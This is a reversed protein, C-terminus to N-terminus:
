LKVQFRQLTHQLTENNPELRQAARWADRAADQSGSKWLVEGLHAGIEANPQLDYARRLLTAAGNLDGERYKVWGLSDIIYADDPSLTNAKEILKSAEPLRENRDALSYGLANYAEPNDPQLRILERLQQEMCAYDATKECAMAYDYRLDTDSPYDKVAQALRKTAESYRQSDFLVAADTRAILAAEHTDSPHLKGLAARAEDIKGAHSLLEARTIQAALYRRSDPAIKDLWQTAEDTKGQDLALQALYLYAQSVDADPNQQALEVYQKFYGTAAASQKQQMKILGLALLPTADKPDNRRLTEFQKQADELRNDALYLQALALHADRSQPHQAVYQEFVRIGKARADPGMQSLLLAAPLYDAKLALAAELSQTAGATDDALVQQRAIAYRAEPRNMDNKLLDQLVALGDTRNPGRGILGQLAVIAPGRSAGKARALEQALMPQAVAPKGGLVLLAADAQSAQTSDPAFQHWLNAALLADAPSQAALAIEAARQAMRPDHTDRALSMYTQFAPAPQNRQLAVEAALVQYLIQATLPQAPLNKQEEPLAQDFGSQASADDSGPVPDQAHAPVAAFGWVSMLLVGLMRRLPLKVSTPPLPHAPARKPFPTSPSTM